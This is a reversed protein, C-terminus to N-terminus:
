NQNNSKPRGGKNPKPLEAENEKAAKVEPVHILEEGDLGLIHKNENFNDFERKSRFIVTRWNDQFQKVKPNPQTRQNIAVHHFEQDKEKIQFNPNKNAQM